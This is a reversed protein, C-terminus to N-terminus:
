YIIKLDEYVYIRVLFEVNETIALLSAEKQLSRVLNEDDVNRTSGVM